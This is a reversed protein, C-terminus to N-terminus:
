DSDSDDTDELEQMPFRLVACLGSLQDLQEGSVHLSSFIKVEGGMERVKDVMEVYKRREAVNQARFLKDSVLLTEVADAEVAMAVHKPGYFARAPENKLMKYFNELARVEESAKTDVLRAQVIPDQLAEKLSHKFGSSAHVLLFKSKNEFLLKNDTKVAQQYMYDFFQQRVFGPSAILVAKVVEFNVHRLVAQIVQDYFKNLGKEHQSCDGRRKRPISVDIKARTITMCSTVLCVHALGEAMVVAAVDASKSPDCALEVRDLHVSDWLVKQLTFKRNLELDITHYAGMKVHQNEEINRGKLRLMCAQTDFDINEVQVTLITRVRDSTRSGTNSETTVKRITSARVADGEQILNFAHWMDETEEPVLVISGAGDKELSRHVLKM